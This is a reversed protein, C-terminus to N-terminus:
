SLTLWAVYKAHKKIDEHDEGFVQWLYRVEKDRVVLKRDKQLNHM